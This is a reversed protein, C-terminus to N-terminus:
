DVKELMDICPIPKNVPLNDSILADSISLSINGLIEPVFHISSGFLSPEVGAGANHQREEGNIAKHSSPM